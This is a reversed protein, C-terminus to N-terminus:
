LIILDRDLGIKYCFFACAFPAPKMRIGDADEFAVRGSPVILQLDNKFDNMYNCTIKNLPMLLIFPKDLKKIYSMVNKVCSFPPNSIIVQGYNSEFFDVPESIVDLGLQRLYEASRGNGHFAEWYVINTDLYPVIQAWTKLSTYYENQIKLKSSLM